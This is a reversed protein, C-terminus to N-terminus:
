QRSDVTYHRNDVTEQEEQKEQEEQEEVQGQQQQGLEGGALAQKVWCIDGRGGKPGLRKSRDSCCPVVSKVM